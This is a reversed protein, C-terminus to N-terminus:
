GREPAPAPAPPAAVPPCTDTALIVTGDACTQSAPAAPAALEVPAAVPAVLVPAERPGGFRFGLAFQLIPYVKFKDIDDEIAQREEVLDAQFTANTALLGTTRLDRVKPSGQFMAGADIGFYVGSGGDNGYGITLTPAFRKGRVEGSISGVQAPTYIVGGIEVDTTPTAFLEVRNRNIRAGPSIRFGSRSPYIDLAAGFSRLKLKGDYNIDDSDIGRSFKFLTASGRVGFSGFRYGAEPGIGLTGASVAVHGGTRASQASATAAVPLMAFSAILLIPKKM